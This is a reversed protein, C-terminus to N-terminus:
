KDYYGRLANKTEVDRRVKSLNVGHFEEMIRLASECSHLTDMIEEATHDINPTFAAELSEKAESEMHNIQKIIAGSNVFKTRPFNFIM